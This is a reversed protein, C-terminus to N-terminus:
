SVSTCGAMLDWTSCLMRIIGTKGSVLIGVGPVAGLSTRSVGNPRIIASYFTCKVIHFYYPSGEKTSRRTSRLSLLIRKGRESATSHKLIFIQQNNIHCCLKFSNHPQVVMRWRRVHNGTENEALQAVLVCNQSMWQLPSYALSSSVPINSIHLWLHV